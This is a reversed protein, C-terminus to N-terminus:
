ANFENRGEKILKRADHLWWKVTGASKGQIRAIEDCSKGDFYHLVIAERYKKSLLAIERILTNREEEKILSDDTREGSDFLDIMYVTESHKKSRLRKFFTNNSVSWVFANWNDIHKGSNIASLLQLAIDQSLDEAEEKTNMKLYAFGLIKPLYECELIHVAENNCKTM